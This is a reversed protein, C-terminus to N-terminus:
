RRRWPEFHPWVTEWPTYSYTNQPVRQIHIYVSNAQSDGVAVRFTPVNASQVPEFSHKDLLRVFDLANLAQIGTFKPIPNRRFDLSVPDLILEYRVERSPMNENYATFGIQPLLSQKEGVSLSEAWKKAEETSALKFAPWLYNMYDVYDDERLAEGLYLFHEPYDWWFDINKGLRQAERYLQYTFNYDSPDSRKLTQLLREFEKESIARKELFSSAVKNVLDIM